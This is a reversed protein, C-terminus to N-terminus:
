DFDGVDGGKRCGNVVEGDRGDSQVLVDCLGVGKVYVNMCTIVWDGM